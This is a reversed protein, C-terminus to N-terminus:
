RSCYRRIIAKAEPPFSDRFKVREYETAFVGYLEIGDFGEYMTRYYRRVTSPTETLEYKLIVADAAKTQSMGFGVILRRMDNTPKIFRRKRMLDEYPNTAGSAGGQLGLSKALMKASKDESLIYHHFGEAFYELLWQPPSMKAKRVLFEFMELLAHPSHFERFQNKTTLFFVRDDDRMADLDFPPLPDNEEILPRLLANLKELQASYDEIESVFAEVGDQLRLMERVQAEVQKRMQEPMEAAHDAFWAQAEEVARRMESVHEKSFKEPFNYPEKELAARLVEWDYPNSV